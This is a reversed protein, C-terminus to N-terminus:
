YLSEWGPNAGLHQYDLAPIPFLYDKARFRDDTDGPWINVEQLTETRLVDFYGTYEGHLEYKREQLVKANFEEQTMSMTALPEVGAVSTLPIESEFPTNARNIILNLRDVALQTPGGNAMNAAEAYILMVESYRYIPKLAGGHTGPYTFQEALTLNPWCYKSTPLEADRLGLAPDARYNRWTWTEKPPINGARLERPWNCLIYYNKRPQEPYADAFHPATQQESYSGWEEPCVNIGPSGVYNSSYQLSWLFEENNPNSSRFIDFIPLLKYVDAEIIENAAAAAKAYYETQKLPATARTLYLKALVMKATWKCPMEKKYDGMKRFAEDLDAEIKDYIFAVEKRDAPTLQNFALDPTTEDIWPLKGYLQVLHFYCFARLFLAHGYVEDVANQDSSGALDGNKFAGIVPNLNNIARWHNNWVASQYTVAYNLRTRGNGHYTGDPWTPGQSYTGQISQMAGTVVAKCQEVNRYFMDPTLFTEPKEELSVCSINMMLLASLAVTLTRSINKKM